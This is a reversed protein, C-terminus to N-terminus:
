HANRAAQIQTREIKCTHHKSKEDYNIGVLVLDGGYAKLAATYNRELIQSIAGEASRNWKLEIIIAPLASRRKPIMVLDAIGHGSPLEEIRAYQDICTLYALKVVYRLSQEDNYFTPAYESDRIEEIASAVAEEDGSLTDELLRDSRRVFEILTHHKSRRLIKEFEARVEENPIKVLGM